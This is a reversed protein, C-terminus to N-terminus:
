SQCPGGSVRDSTGFDMMVGTGRKLGTPTPYKLYQITWLRERRQDARPAVAYAIRRTV